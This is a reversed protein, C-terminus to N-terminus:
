YNTVKITNIVNMGDLKKNLKNEKHRIRNENVLESWFELPATSYETIYDLRDHKRGERCYRIFGSVNHCVASKIYGNM